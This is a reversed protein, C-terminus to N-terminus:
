HCHGALPEFDGAVGLDARDAGMGLVGALTVGSNKHRLDRLTNAIASLCWKQVDPLIVCSRDFDVLPQPKALPFEPVECHQSFFLPRSSDTKFPRPKLREM